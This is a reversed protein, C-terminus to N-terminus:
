LHMLDKMNYMGAPKGALFVAAALLWKVMGIRDTAFLLAFVAIFFACAAAAWVLWNLEASWGVIAGLLFAAAAFFVPRYALTM